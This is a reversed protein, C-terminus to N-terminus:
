KIYYVLVGYWIDYAKEIDLFVALTFRRNSISKHIDGHLQMLCDKTSRKNRFGCQAPHLLDNSELFWMLQNAIM